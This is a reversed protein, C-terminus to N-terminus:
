AFALASCTSDSVHVYRSTPVLVGIVRTSHYGRWAAFVHQPRLFLERCAVERFVRIAHV